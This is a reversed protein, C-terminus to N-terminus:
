EFSYMVSVYEVQNVTFPKNCDPPNMPHLTKGVGVGVPIGVVGVCVGVLVCVGLTVGVLVSVGVGVGVFVPVGFVVGVVVGVGDIVGDRDTDDNGTLPILKL